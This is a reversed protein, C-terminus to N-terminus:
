LPTCQFGDRATQGVVRPLLRVHELRRRRLRELYARQSGPLDAAAERGGLQRLESEGMKLAPNDQLRVPGVGLLLCALRVM